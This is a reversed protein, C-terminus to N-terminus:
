IKILGKEILHILMKARCDAETIEEIEPVKLKGKYDSYSVGWNKREKLFYIHQGFRYGGLVEDECIAEPLLEGLESVTFASYTLSKAGGMVPRPYHLDFGGDFRGFGDWWVFSEQKVGLEKLRKALDLSVVQSELNM